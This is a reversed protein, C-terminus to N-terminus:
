PLPTIKLNDILCRFSGTRNARIRFGIHGPGLPKPDIVTIRRQGDVEVVVRDGDKVIRFHHSRQAPAVLANDVAALQRGGPNKQLLAKAVRQPFDAARWGTHWELMYYKVSIQTTLEADVAPDSLSPDTAFAAGDRTASFVLSPHGTFRLAQCDFEIVIRDSFVAESLITFGLSGQTEELLLKGDATRKVVGRGISYWGPLAPDDFSDTFPLKATATATATVNLPSVPTNPTALPPTAAPPAVSPPNPQLQPKGGFICGTLLAALLPAAALATARVIALSARM